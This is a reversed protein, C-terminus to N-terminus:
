CNSGRGYTIIFREGCPMRRMTFREIFSRTLAGVQDTVSTIYV